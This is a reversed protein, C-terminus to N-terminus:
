PSDGSAESDVKKKKSANARLIAGPSPYPRMQFLSGSATTDVGSKSETQLGDSWGGRPIDSYSAPDMPDLDNQQRKNGRQNRKNQNSKERESKEKEKTPKPTEEEPKTEEEDEEDSEESSSEKDGAALHQEEKLVAAPETIIAKPHNPPLWSM